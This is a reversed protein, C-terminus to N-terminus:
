PLVEKVTVLRWGEALPKFGDEEDAFVRKDEDHVWIKGEWPKIEVRYECDVWDWTPQSTTRWGYDEMGAYKWEIKRGNAFALM